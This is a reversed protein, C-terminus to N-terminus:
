AVSRDYDALGDYENDRDFVEKLLDLILLTAIDPEQDVMDAIQLNTLGCVESLSKIGATECFTMRKSFITAVKSDEKTAVEEYETFPVPDDFPPSTDSTTNSPPLKVLSVKGHDVAEQLSDREWSGNYYSKALPKKAPERHYRNFSYENSAWWGEFQEGEDKNAILHNGLNDALLFISYNGAYKALITALTPDKTVAEPGVATLLKECLPTVFSKTFDKTDSDTKNGFDSLTGNHMFQLDMGHKRKKLVGFPHVNDANTLGRTTFRLHVYTDVDISNELYRALIDPDNGKEWFFKRLSMEGRDVTIIGMGHANVHCASYLKDYPITVGPSRHIIVCM